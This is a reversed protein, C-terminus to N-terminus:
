RRGGTLTLYVEELSPRKHRVSRVPLSLDAVRRFIERMADDLDADTKVRIETKGKKQEVAEALQLNWDVREPVSGEKFELEVLNQLGFEDRLESPTGIKQIQGQNLIGIRGAINEVDSLIHSSFFV